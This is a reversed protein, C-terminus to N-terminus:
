KDYMETGKWSLLIFRRELYRHKMRQVAYFVIIFLRETFYVQM